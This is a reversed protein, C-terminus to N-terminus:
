FGFALVFLYAPFDLLFDALHLLDESFLRSPEGPCWCSTEFREIQLFDVTPQHNLPACQSSSFKKTRGRLLVELHLGECLFGSQAEDSGGVASELHRSSGPADLSDFAKLKDAIQVSTGGQSILGSM